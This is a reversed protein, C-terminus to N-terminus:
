PQPTPGLELALFLDVRDAFSSMRRGTLEEIRGMRYRLTNVHLHLQAATRTWSCACDLFVRLTHVLDSGHEADYERLPGLLRARFSDRLEDPVTALLLQHSAIEEGSLVGGRPDRHVALRRASRAEVAAARVGAVAVPGSVGIVLRAAGLGAQVVRAGERLQGVLAGLRDPPAAVVALAEEGTPAVLAHPVLEAVLEDLLTGAFAVPVGVVEASLVRLPLEPDFGAAGLRTAIEAHGGGETLVLRALTAAPRNEIRRREEARVRELGVLGALETALARQPEPRRELDGDVALAWSTLRNGGRAGAALLGVPGHGPLRVTRPLRDALLFRRALEARQGPLLEPGTGAVLRGTPTVVRCDAGLEAAGLRLLEGLGGGEAVATVLQRHRELATAQESAQGSREAALTLIVRETITAFSIDEAVELLPLGYRRCAEVMDEPVAGVGATGAVVAAVGAEVVASVFRESDAPGRRWMMGTLVLEGGSLYRRPDRLDTTFAWRLPRDLADAGVLVSLKLERAELLTRLLM